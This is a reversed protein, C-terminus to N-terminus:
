KNNWLFENNMLEQITHDTITRYRYLSKNM